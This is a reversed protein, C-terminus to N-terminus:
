LMFTVTTSPTNAPPPSTRSEFTLGGLRNAVADVTAKTAIDASNSPAAVRARGSSDRKIIRDPTPASTADLASADSVNALTTDVTKALAEMQSAGLYVPDGTTPYPISYRPTYQPM